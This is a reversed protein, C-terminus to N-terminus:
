LRQGEARVLLAELQDAVDIGGTGSPTTPSGVRSWGPARRVEDAVGDLEGLLAVHDDRDALVRAGLPARAQVEADAVGADANGRVLVCAIKSAKRCASPDVVRRKPPVPSPSAM